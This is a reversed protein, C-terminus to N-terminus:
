SPNDTYLLLSLFANWRGTTSSIIIITVALVLISFPCVSWVM